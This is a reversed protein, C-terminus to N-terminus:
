SYPNLIAKNGNGIITIAPYWIGEGITTTKQPMLKGNLYFQLKRKELDLEM